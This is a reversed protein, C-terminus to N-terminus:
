AKRNLMLQSLEVIKEKIMFMLASGLVSKILQARLGAYLGMLGDRRLISAIVDLTGTYPVHDAPMPGRYQLRLKAM